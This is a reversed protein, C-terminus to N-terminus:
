VGRTITPLYEACADAASAIEAPSLPTVGAAAPDLTHEPRFQQLVYMDGGAVLKALEPLESGDILPPYVTTRFEHAIDSDMLVGISALVSDGADSPGIRAYREPLTKIDLAVYDVLGSDIIHELLHPSTGNTDLKV